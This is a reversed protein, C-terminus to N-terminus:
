ATNSVPAPSGTVSAVLIKKLERNREKEYERIQQRMHHVEWQLLQYGEERTYHPKAPVPCGAGPQPTPAVSLIAAREAAERMAHDIEADLDVGSQIDFNREFEPYEQLRTSDDAVAQEETHEEARERAAEMQAMRLSVTTAQQIAYLMLGATRQELQGSALAQVVESLAVRVSHLNELPPINLPCPENRSQAFARRLRRGRHMLHRYCFKRGRLAPSACYVGDEKIHHCTEFPM